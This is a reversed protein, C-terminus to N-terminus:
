EKERQSRILCKEKLKIAIYVVAFSCLFALISRVLMNTVPPFGIKFVKWGDFIGLKEFMQLFFPHILYIGFTCPAIVEILRALWACSSIEMNKFFVFVAVSIVVTMVSMTDIWHIDGVGIKHSYKYTLVFTALLAVLGVCYILLRIPRRGKSIDHQMLFRGLIWYGIYGMEPIIIFLRAATKVQEDINTNKACMVCNYIILFAAFIALLLVYRKNTDNAEEAHKEYEDCKDCAIYRTIVQGAALVCMFIPIFWLHYKPYAFAELVFKTEIAAFGSIVDYGKYVVAFIVYIVFYYLMKKGIKMEPIPRSFAGSLMFFIPVAIIAFSYFGVAVMWYNSNCDGYRWVSTVHDLIVLFIAVIRLLDFKINREKCEGSM